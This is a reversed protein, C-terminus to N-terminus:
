MRLMRGKKTFLLTLLKILKNRAQLSKCPGITKQQKNTPEKVKMSDRWVPVKLGLKCHKEEYLTRLFKTSSGYIDHANIGDSLLSKWLDERSLGTEAKPM